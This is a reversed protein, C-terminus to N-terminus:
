GPKPVARTPRISRWCARGADARRIAPPPGGPPGASLRPARSATLWAPLSYLLLWARWAFGTLCDVWVIRDGFLFFLVLMALIGHLLVRYARYSADEAQRTVQGQALAIVVIALLALTFAIGVDLMGWWGPFSAINKSFGAALPFASSIFLVVATAVALPRGWIALAKSTLPSPSPRTRPNTQETAM